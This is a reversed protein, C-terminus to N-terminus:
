KLAWGPFSIRQVSGSSLPWEGRDQWYAYKEVQQRVQDRGLQMEAEGLQHVEVRHPPDREVVLFYFDDHPEGTAATCLDLYWAAQWHLRGNLATRSFAEPSSDDTTKLDMVAPPGGYFDLLGKGWITGNDTEVPAVVAVQRDKCRELLEVAPEYEQVAQVSDRVRQLEDQTLVTLGQDEAWAKWAKGASGLLSLGGPGWHSPKVPVNGMEEHQDKWERGAKLWADRAGLLDPPVEVFHEPLEEPRRPATVFNRALHEPGRTLLSDDASGFRMERTVTRDQGERWKMYGPSRKLDVLRGRNVADLVKYDDFPLGYIIEAKM